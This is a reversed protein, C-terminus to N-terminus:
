IMRTLTKVSWSGSLSRGQLLVNAGSLSASLILNSTAGIDNTSTEVYEINAGNWVTFVTGARANTGSHAVFDFFGAMYSSTSFSAINATSGSVIAANNSYQLISNSIQLSGTIGYSGTLQKSNVWVSGSKVLLDGYSSTTSSDVVDHLEGLEYGNDIKVYISGITAHSRQVFGVVVTHIPATPKISTYQGASSSLFLMSGESLALTNLGNVVGQTTIYGEAGVAIPETVMGLTNASLSDSIATARKVAIRNGQSGSIYVVMGDTLPISDANFVRSIMEQGVQLNVNGGKLGLSLTGNGDDWGLRGIAQPQDSGTSFDIWNPTSISGSVKLNTAYSSTLSYSSSIARSASVSYSSTGFLSGTIGNTVTLSNLAADSGSILVKKWSPM